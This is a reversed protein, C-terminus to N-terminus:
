GTPGPAARELELEADRLADLATLRGEIQKERFREVDERRLRTHSGVRHSPIDGARIHKMLTPRSMGLRHAAVTTTLDEAVTGVTIREGRGRLLIIQRLVRSLEPGIVQSGRGSVSLTVTLDANEHDLDLETLVEHAQEQDAQAQSEALAAATLQELAPM